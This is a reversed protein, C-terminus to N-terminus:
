EPDFESTDPVFHAAFVVASKLDPSTKSLRSALNSADQENDDVEVVYTVELLRSM